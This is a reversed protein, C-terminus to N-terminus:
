FEDKFQIFDILFTIIFIIFFIALSIYWEYLQAFNDVFHIIIISAIGAISAYFFSYLFAKTYRNRTKFYEYSHEKLDKFTNSFNKVSNGKSINNKKKGKKM